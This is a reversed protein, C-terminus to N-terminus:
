AWVDLSRSWHSPTLSWGLYPLSLWQCLPLGVECRSGARALVGDGAGGRVLTVAAVVCQPFVHSADVDVGTRGGFADPAHLRYLSVGEDSYGKM